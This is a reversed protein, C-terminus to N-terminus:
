RSPKKLLRRWPLTKVARKALSALDDSLEEAKPAFKKRVARDESKKATTALAGATGSLKSLGDAIAVRNSAADAAVTSIMAMSAMLFTAITATRM